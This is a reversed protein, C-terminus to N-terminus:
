RLQRDRIVADADLGLMQWTDEVAEVADIWGAVPRGAAGTQPQRDDLM